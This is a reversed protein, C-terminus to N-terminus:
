TEGADRTPIVGRAFLAYLVCGAVLLAVLTALSSGRVAADQFGFLLDSGVNFGLHLGFPLFLSGTRLYAYAALVGFLFVGAYVLPNTLGREPVHPVVFVLATVLIPLGWGYRERLIELPYARFELEEVAAVAAALVVVLAVTTADLGGVPADGGTVVFLGFALAQAALGLAVGFLTLRKWLRDRLGLSSVPKGDVFRRYAFIVAVAGLGGGVVTLVRESSALPAPDAADVGLVVVLVAVMLLLRGLEVAPYFTLLKLWTRLAGSRGDARGAADETAEEPHTHSM